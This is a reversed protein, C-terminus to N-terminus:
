ASSQPRKFGRIVHQAVSQRLLICSVEENDTSSGFSKLDDHNQERIINGGDLAHYKSWVQNSTSIRSPGGFFSDRQSSDMMSSFSIDARLPEWTRRCNPEVSTTSRDVGNSPLPNRAQSITRSVATLDPTSPDANHTISSDCDQISLYTRNFCHVVEFIIHSVQHFELM